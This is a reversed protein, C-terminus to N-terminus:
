IEASEFIWFRNLASPYQELGMAAKSDINEFSSRLTQTM